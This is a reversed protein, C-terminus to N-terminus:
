PSYLRRVADEIAEPILSAWPEGERIRRRVETASVEDWNGEVALPHIRAALGAPPAYGGARAAVLMQFEDLMRAFAGPEGYDWGVIREAADRGCLIYIEAAEHTERAERAIDIFLGGRSVGISFEPRSSAAALMALRDDLGVGDYTKHPFSEPLVFLVEDVHALAAEALALHARTPPHFGGPFVGLRRPAFEARRILRM